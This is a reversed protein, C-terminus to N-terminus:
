METRSTDEGSTDSWYCELLTEVIGSAVLTQVFCVSLMCTSTCTPTYASYRIYNIYTATCTATCTPMCNPTCAPIYTHTSPYRCTIM